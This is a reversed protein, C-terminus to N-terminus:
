EFINEFPITIDPKSNAGDLPILMEFTFAYDLIDDLEPDPNLLRLDYERYVTTTPGADVVAVKGCFKRMEKLFWVAGCPKVADDYGRLTTIKIDGDSDPTGFERVMDDWNRIKVVDGVKFVKRESM